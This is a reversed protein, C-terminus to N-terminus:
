AVLSTVLSADIVEMGWVKIQAAMHFREGGPLTTAGELLVHGAISGGLIQNNLLM